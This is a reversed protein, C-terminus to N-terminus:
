ITGKHGLVQSSGIVITREILGMIFPQYIFPREIVPVLILTYVKRKRYPKYWHVIYPVTPYLSIVVQNDYIM